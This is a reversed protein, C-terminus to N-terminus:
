SACESEAVAPPEGADEVDLETRVIFRLNLFNITFHCAIPAGLDGTLKVLLGFVFGLVLASLTWPLFRAKPGVHLLAFIIAQATLGLWPLLAGRFLLEEGVASATALVLIETGSLQGLLDRFDVHLHRAWQWRRVSIRTLAVVGLGIGVGLPPSLLLWDLSSHDLRYLDVDGRWFGIALAVLSLAGYLLGILTAQSLRTPAQRRYGRM